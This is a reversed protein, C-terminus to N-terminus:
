LVAEQKKGAKGLLNALTTTTALPQPEALPAALTLNTVTSLPPLAKGM